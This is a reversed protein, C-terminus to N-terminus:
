PFSIAHGAEIISTGHRGPVVKEERHLLGDIRSRGGCKGHLVGGLVGGLVSGLM